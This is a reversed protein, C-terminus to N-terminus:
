TSTLNLLFFVCYMYVVMAAFLRRVRVSAVTEVAVASLTTFVMSKREPPYHTANCGAVIRKAGRPLFSPMMLSAIFIGSKRFDSGAAAERKFREIRQAVEDPSSRLFVVTMGVGVVGIHASMFSASSPNMRVLMSVKFRGM